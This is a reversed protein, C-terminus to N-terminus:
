DDHAVQLHYTETVVSSNITDVSCTLAMITTGDSTIPVPTSGYTASSGGCVGDKCTPANVGDTTYCITANPTTTSLTVPFADSRTVAPPNFTPAAATELGLRVQLTWSGLDSAVYDVAIAYARITTTKSVVFPATYVVGSDIRPNSGDTTYYITSNYTTDALTVTVPEYFEYDDPASMPPDTEITPADTAWGGGGIFGGDDGSDVSPAMGADSSADSAGSSSSSSSPPLVNPVSGSSSTRADPSETISILEDGCALALATSAVFVFLARKM